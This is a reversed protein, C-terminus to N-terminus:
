QLRFNIEITARVAVPEGKRTGPAFRWQQVAEAAKQDLGPDLSKLVNIDRALGDAGIVLNLMVTGSVKESRAEETYQPDVRYVVRPMTVDGGVKYIQDSQAHGNVPSLLGIGALM